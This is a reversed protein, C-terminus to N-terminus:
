NTTRTLFEIRNGFPDNSYFRIIGPLKEDESCIYGAGELRKRVETLNEVRFAPHAKKAAVFDANEVGLHVAVHKSEFWCGGRAVLEDPKQIEPICLLNQYFARAEPEMGKPMALQIHDLGTIMQAEATPRFGSDV